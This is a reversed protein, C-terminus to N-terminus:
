QKNGKHTNIIDDVDDEVRSLITFMERMADSIRDPLVENDRLKKSLAYLANLRKTLGCLNNQLGCNWYEYRKM